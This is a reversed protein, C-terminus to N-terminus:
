NLRIFNLIECIREQDFNTLEPYLPISLITKSFNEANPFDKEKFGLKKYFPQLHVPMYHVQTGVGYKRFNEYLIEQWEFYEFRLIALHLSSYIGEPIKNMKFPKNM